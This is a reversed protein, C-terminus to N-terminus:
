KEDNYGAARGTRGIVFAQPLSDDHQMNLGTYSRAALFEAGSKATGKFLISDAQEKKLSLAKQTLEALVVSREEHEDGDLLWGSPFFVSSRREEEEKGERVERESIQMLNRFEIVYEGTWQSGRQFALMAEFPTIVPALFEKSDLLATQACSVYVFVDCEPFNALKAASPRGMVLTYSKKGAKEILKKMQQVMNLYGAIGLTGVLIGVINADKAKEVLYYRRNLIKRHLNRDKVLCNEKADYRVTECSNFMLMVNTFAPNDSGIWFLLYQEIRHDAPIGWTLGGLTYSSSANSKNRDDSEANTDREETIYMKTPDISFCSVDAFIPEPLTVGSESLKNAIERKISDLVHAFELGFLVLVPKESTSLCNYLSEACINVNIPMKGFVFLAPLTSTPSCCAHGYHVVCDADVHSAAVEDVCCSGYATDAMVYLAVGKGLEARLAKAVRTADDLLEDPFQLAVRKYGRSRVFEATTSIEYRSAFDM